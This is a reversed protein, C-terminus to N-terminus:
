KTYKHRSFWDLNKEFSFTNDYIDRYNLKLSIPTLEKKIRDIEENSHNEINKEFVVLHSNPQIVKKLVNNITTHWYSKSDLDLCDSIANFQSGDRTFTLSDVILPGM